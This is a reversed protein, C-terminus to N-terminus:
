NFFSHLEDARCRIQIEVIATNRTEENIGNPLPGWSISFCTNQCNKFNLDTRPNNISSWKKLQCGTDGTNLLSRLSILSSRIKLVKKEFIYRLLVNLITEGAIKKRKLFEIVYIAKDGPRKLWNVQFQM